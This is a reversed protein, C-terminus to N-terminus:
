AGSRDARSRSSAHGTRDACGLTTNALFADDAVQPPKSLSYLLTGGDLNLRLPQPQGAQPYDYMLRVLGVAAFDQGLTQRTQLEQLQAPLDPYRALQSGSVTAQLQFGGSNTAAQAEQIAGLNTTVLLLVLFMVLGLLAVTVGTRFRFTLPYALGTRGVPAIGRV